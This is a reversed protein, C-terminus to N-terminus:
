LSHTQAGRLRLVDSWFTSLLPEPGEEGGGGGGKQGMQKCSPQIELRSEETGLVKQSERYGEEILEGNRREAGGPACQPREGGREDGM